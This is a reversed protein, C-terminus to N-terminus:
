WVSLKRTASSGDAEIRLLYSGSHLADTPIDLYATGTTVAAGGRDLLRGSLDYINRSIIEAQGSAIQEALYGKALAARSESLEVGVGKLGRDLFALLVGGEACGIELVRMDPRLPFHEEIFPVVFSAANEHQMQFYLDKNSHFHIGM